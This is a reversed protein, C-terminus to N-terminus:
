HGSKRDFDLDTVASFCERGKKLMHLADFYHAPPKFATIEGYQLLFAM